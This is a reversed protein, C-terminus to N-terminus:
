EGAGRIQATFQRSGESNWGPVTGSPRSNTTPQNSQYESRAFRSLNQNQQGRSDLFGQSNEEAKELYPAAKSKWQQQVGCFPM